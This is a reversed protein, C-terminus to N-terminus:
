IAKILQHAIDLKNKSTVIKLIANMLENKTYM